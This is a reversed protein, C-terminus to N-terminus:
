PLVDTVAVDPWFTLPVGTSLPNGFVPGTVPGILTRWPLVTM